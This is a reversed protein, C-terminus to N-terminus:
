QVDIWLGVYSLLYFLIPQNIFEDTLFSPRRKMEFKATLKSVPPMAPDWSQFDQKAEGTSLQWEPGQQLEWEAHSLTDSKVDGWILEVQSSGVDPILFNLKCTQTDYPMDSFDLPCSFKSVHESTFQDIGTGYLRHRSKRMTDLDDVRESIRFPPRWFNGFMPHSDEFELISCNFLLRCDRWVWNLLYHMEFQQNKQHINWIRLVKMNMVLQLPKGLMMTDSNMARTSVSTIGLLPGMPVATAIEVILADEVSNRARFSQIWNYQTTGV